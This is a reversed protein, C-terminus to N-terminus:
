EGALLTLLKTLDRLGFISSTVSSYPALKANDIQMMSKPGILEQATWSRDM